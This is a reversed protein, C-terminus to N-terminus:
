SSPDPSKLPLPVSLLTSPNGSSSRSSAVLLAISRESLVLQAQNLIASTAILRIAQIICGKSLRRHSGMFTYKNMFPLCSKPYLEEGFGM